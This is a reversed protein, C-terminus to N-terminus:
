SVYQISVGSVSYLVYNPSNKLMGGDIRDKVEILPTSYILRADLPWGYVPTLRSPTRLTASSWRIYVSDNQGPGPATCSPFLAELAAWM